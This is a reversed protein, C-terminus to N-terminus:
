QKIKIPFAIEGYNSFWLKQADVDTIWAGGRLGWNPGWSNDIWFDVATLSRALAPRFGSVCYAHGGIVNGTARLYGDTGPEFMNDTWNSGAEASGHYSLGHLVESVTRAWRWSRIYGLTRAAHMAGNVSSGDYDEGEWEDERRAQYYLKQAFTATVGTRAFPTSALAHAGGFGTCAGEKGQDLNLPQYRKIQARRSSDAYCDLGALRFQSNRERHTSPQWDLRRRQGDVEVVAGEQMDTM